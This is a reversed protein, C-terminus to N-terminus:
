DGSKVVMVKLQKQITEGSGMLLCVYMGSAVEKSEENMLNWEVQRLGNGAPIVRVLDAAMNYIRVESVDANPFFFTTHTYEPYNVPNPGVSYERGANITFTVNDLAAQVEGDFAKLSGMYVGDLVGSPIMAMVSITQSGNVPLSVVPPNFTFDTISQYSNGQLHFGGGVVELRVDTLATNGRNTVTVTGISQYQGSQSVASAAQWSADLAAMPKVTVTLQIRDEQGNARIAFSGNYTDFIQATPINVTLALTAFDRCDITSSTLVVASAPITVGTNIAGTLPEIEHVTFGTLEANGTNTSQLTSSLQNGPAGSLTVHDETVTFGYVESLDFTVTINEDDTGNSPSIGRVHVTGGYTGACVDMVGPFSATVTVTQSASPLLAFDNPMYSLGFGADLTHTLQISSLAVNGTNTVTFTATPAANPAGDFSLSTASVQLRPISSVEVMVHFTEEVLNNSLQGNARVTVTGRYIGSLAGSNVAVSATLQKEGGKAITGDGIGNFTISGALVTTTGELVLSSATVQLNRLGENAPGDDPDCQNATTNDPNRVVFSRDQSAGAAVLYSVDSVCLDLDTSASVRVQGSLTRTQCGTTTPTATVTLNYNGAAQGVSSLVTVEVSQQGGMPITFSEPSFNVQGNFGAGFSGEMRVQAPINGNNSLTVVETHSGGHNMPFNLSDTGTGSVLTFDCRPAVTVRAGINSNSVPGTCTIATIVFPGDLTEHLGGCANAPVAQTSAAFTRSEGPELETDTINLSAWIFVDCGDQRLRVPQASLGTIACNGTNTITVASAISGQGGPQVTGFDLPNQVATVTWAPSGNVRLRVTFTMPTLASGCQASVTVPAEYDGSAQNNPVNVSISVTAMSMPAITTQSVNFTGTFNPAFQIVTQNNSRVTLNTIADNGLNHVEFTALNPYNNGEEVTFRGQPVDDLQWSCEPIVALTVPITDSPSGSATTAIFQGSYTGAELFAPLVTTVTIARDVPVPAWPLNITQPNFAFNVATPLNFNQASFIVNNVSASGTNRVHFTFQVPQGQMANQSLSSETIVIDQRGNEVRVQVAFTASNAGAGNNDAVTVTGTYLGEVQSASTNATVTATVSAGTALSTIPNPSVSLALTQNSGTVAHTLTLGTFRINTLANRSGNFLTVTRSDSQGASITMALQTPMINLGEIAGTVVRVPIEATPQGDDDSVIVRGNVVAPAAGAPIQINMDVRATSGFNLQTMPDPDFTVIWSTPFDAARVDLNYLTSNGTNQVTFFGGGITGTPISINIGGAPLLTISESSGGVTTSVWVSDCDSADSYYGDACVKLWGEYIGGITNTNTVVTFVVSQPSDGALEDDIFLAGEITQGTSNRLTVVTGPVGVNVLPENGPGDYSDFINNFALTHPNAVLIRGTVSQGAIASLVLNNADVDEGFNSIDFDVRPNAMMQDMAAPPNAYNLATGNPRSDFSYGGYCYVEGPGGFNTDLVLNTTNNTVAIIEADGVIQGVTYQVGRQPVFTFACTGRVVSRKRFILAGAYDTAVPNDWTVRIQNQGIVPSATFNVLQDPPIYDGPTGAATSNSLPRCYNNDDDVFFIRYNYTIEDRGTIHTTTTTNPPFVGGGLLIGENENAPFATNGTTYRIMVGGRTVFDADTPNRWALVVRDLQSDASLNPTEPNPQVNPFTCPATNDIPMACAENSLPGVYNSTNKTGIRFCYTTGNVPMNLTSLIAESVTRTYTAPRTVLNVALSDVPLASYTGNQLRGYIYFYREDDYAYDTNAGTPYSWQLNVVRDGATATLSGTIPPTPEGPLMLTPVQTQVSLSQLIASGSASGFTGAYATYNITYPGVDSVHGNEENFIPPIQTGCAAKLFRMDANWYGNQNTYGALYLSTDCGGFVPATAKLVVLVGPKFGPMGSVGVPGFVIAPTILATMEDATSTQLVPTSVGNSEVYYEYATHPTLGTLTILHTQSSLGDTVPGIWASTGAERYYVNGNAVITSTWFVSVQDSLHNATNLNNFLQAHSSVASFALYLWTLLLIPKFRM